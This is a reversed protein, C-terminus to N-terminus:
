RNRAFYEPRHHVSQDREKTRIMLDHWKGDDLPHAPKFSLSYQSRLEASLMDLIREFPEGVRRQADQVRWADGGSAQAIAELVSMNVTDGFDPQTTSPVPIPSPTTGPVPIPLTRGGPLPIPLGGPNTPRPVGIVVQGAFPLGAADTIPTVSLTAPIGICYIQVDSERVTRMIQSFNTSSSSDAGDTVV